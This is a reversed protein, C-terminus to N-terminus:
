SVRRLFTPVESETLGRFENAITPYYERKLIRINRRAENLDNEYDYYTVANRYTTQIVTQNDFNLNIPTVGQEDPLEDYYDHPVSLENNTLKTKNIIYRFETITQETQNEQKVVKEYHHVSATNTLDQTWSIVETDTPNGGLDATAMGRYKDAIYKNFNNYTMPWEFQPDIIENAYLIVWHAEPDGYVKNALIEPTDGDRIIYKIYASSNSLVEQIIATRFLINTVTQYNPYKKNSLSYQIVPFRDFFRAM